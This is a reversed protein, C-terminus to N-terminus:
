KEYAFFIFDESNELGFTSMLEFIEDIANNVVLKPMKRSIMPLLGNFSIFLSFRKNSVKKVKLCSEPLDIGCHLDEPFTSPHSRSEFCRLNDLDVEM